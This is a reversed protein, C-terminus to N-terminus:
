WYSRSTVLTQYPEISVPVPNLLNETKPFRISLQTTLVFRDGKCVSSYFKM